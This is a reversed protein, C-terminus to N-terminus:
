TTSTVNTHGKVDTPAAIPVGSAQILALAIPHLPVRVVVTNLGATVLDPVRPKKPLILTLPGPWFADALQNVIPPIESAVREVDEVSAIHVILPDNSPRGKAAFIKAVAEEDLANVGLGYVTETPFAGLGRRLIVEAAQAILHPDPAEPHLTFVRTM